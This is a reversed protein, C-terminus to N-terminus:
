TLAFFLGDCISYGTSNGFMATKRLTKIIRDKSVISVSLLDELMLHLFEPFLNDSFLADLNASYRNMNKNIYKQQQMSLLRIGTNYGLIFDDGEPTLGSGYGEMRSLLEVTNDYEFVPEVNFYKDYPIGTKSYSFFISLYKKLSDHNLCSESSKQYKSDFICMNNKRLIDPGFMIKGDEVTIIDYFRIQRKSIISFPSEYESNRIISVFPYESHEPIYVASNSFDALKRYKENKKLINLDIKYM